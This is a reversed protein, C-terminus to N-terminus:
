ILGLKQRVKRVEGPDNVPNMPAAGRLVGVVDTAITVAM